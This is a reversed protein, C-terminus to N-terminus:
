AEKLIGALRRAWGRGHHPWNALNTMRELRQGAFRLRLRGVNVNDLAMLTRPGIIGDATEGLAAQLARIATKPGSHVAMDFLDGRLPAPVLDCGAPGWYDRHYIARAREVTMGRINEAPYARQSIGMNTLGGPDAPDDVLGGERKLVAAFAEDFTTM